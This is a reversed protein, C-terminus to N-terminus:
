GNILNEKISRFINDYTEKSADSPLNIEVKVSLGFNDAIKGDKVSSGPAPEKSTEKDSKVTHANTKPTYKKQKKSKSNNAARTTPLEGHGSLASFVKFTAAQRKGITASTQDSQRFFTILTGSDLAWANDGHM